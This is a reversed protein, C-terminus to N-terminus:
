NGKYERLQEFDYEYLKYNIELQNVKEKLKKNENNLPERAKEYETKNIETKLEEIQENTFKKSHIHPIYM